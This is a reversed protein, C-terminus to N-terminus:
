STFTTPERCVDPPLGPAYARIRMGWPLLSSTPPKKRCDNATVALLAVDPFTINSQLTDSKLLVGMMRSTKAKRSVTGPSGICPVSIHDDPGIVPVVAQLVWDISTVGSM